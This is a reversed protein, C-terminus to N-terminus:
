VTGVCFVRTPRVRSRLVASRRAMRSRRSIGGAPSTATAGVVDIDTDVTRFTM